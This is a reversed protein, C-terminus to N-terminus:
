ASNNEQGQSFDQPLHEQNQSDANIAVVPDQLIQNQSIQDEPVSNQLAQEKPAQDHPVSDHLVEQGQSILDQQAKSVEDKPVQIESLQDKHEQNQPASVFSKEDNSIQTQHIHNQPAKGESAQDHSGKDPLQDQPAHDQSPQNDTLIQDEVEHDKHMHNQPVEDKAVEDNYAQDELRTASSQALAEFAARKAKKIAFEIKQQILQLSGLKALYALEQKDMKNQLAGYVASKTHGAHLKWKQFADILRETPDVSALLYNKVVLRLVFMKHKELKKREEEDLPIESLQPSDFKMNERTNVQTTRLSSPAVESLNKNDDGTLIPGVGLNARDIFHASNIQLFARSLTIEYRKRVYNFIKKMANYQKSDIHAGDATISDRLRWFAIQYTIHSNKAILGMSKKFWPNYHLSNNRWTTFSTYLASQQYLKMYRLLKNVALMHKRQMYLRYHEQIESFAEKKAKLFWKDLLGTFRRFLVKSNRTKLREFAEKLVAQRNKQILNLLNPVKRQTDLATMKTVLYWRHFFHGLSRSLFTRAFLQVAGKKRDSIVVNGAFQHLQEKLHLRMLEFLKQTERLVEVKQMCREFLVWKEFAQRLKGKGSWILKKLATKKVDNKVIWEVKLKDFADKIKSSMIRRVVFTLSQGTAQALNTSKAPLLKWKEFAQYLQGSQTKFLALLTQKLLKKKKDFNAFDKMSQRLVDLRREDIWEAILTAAELKRDERIKNSTKIHSAKEKWRLLADHMLLKINREVKFILKSKKEQKSGAQVITSFHNKLGFNLNEFLILTKRCLLAHTLDKANNKWLFFIRKLDDQTATIFLQVAKRKVENREFWLEKLPDFGKKLSLEYIKNLQYALSGIAAKKTPDEPKPLYKWHNFANQLMGFNTKYVGVFFRRKIDAAANLRKLKSFAERLLNTEIKENWNEIGTFLVKKKEEIIAEKEVEVRAFDRWTNFSQRLKTNFSKLFFRVVNKQKKKVVPNSGMFTVLQSRLTARAVNFLQVVQKCTQIHKLNRTNNAWLNFYRKIDSQSLSILKRVVVVKQDNVEHWTQQIAEFGTRLLRRHLSFLVRQLTSVGVNRSIQIKDCMNKWRQFALLKLGFTTNLFRNIVRRKLIDKQYKGKWKKFYYNMDNMVCKNHVVALKNLLQLKIEQKLDGLNKLMMARDHWLHFMENM